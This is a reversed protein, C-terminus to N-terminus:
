MATQYLSSTVLRVSALNPLHLGPIKQMQWKRLTGRLRLARKYFYRRCVTIELIIRESLQNSVSIDSLLGKTTYSLPIEYQRCLLRYTTVPKLLYITTTCSELRINTKFYPKTIQTCNSSCAQLKYKWLRAVTCYRASVYIACASLYELVVHM